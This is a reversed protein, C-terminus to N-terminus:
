VLEYALGRMKANAPPYWPSGVYFPQASSVTPVGLDTNDCQAAIGNVNLTFQGGILSISITNTAHSEDCGFPLSNSILECGANTLTVGVMVQSTGPVLWAGPFRYGDNEGLHLINSWTSM